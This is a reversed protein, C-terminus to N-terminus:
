LTGRIMPEGKRAWIGAIAGGTGDSTTLTRKLSVKRLHFHALLVALFALLSWTSYMYNRDVLRRSQGFSNWKSRESHKWFFFFVGWRVWEQKAGFFIIAKGGITTM